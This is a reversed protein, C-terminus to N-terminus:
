ITKCTFEEQASPNGHHVNDELSFWCHINVENFAGTSVDKGFYKGWNAPETAMSM